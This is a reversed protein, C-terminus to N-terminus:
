FLFEFLDTSQVSLRSRHCETWAFRSLYNDFNPEKKEWRQAGDSTLRNGDIASSLLKSRKLWTQIGNKLEPVCRHSDEFNGKPTLDRMWGAHTVNNPNEWLWCFVGSM